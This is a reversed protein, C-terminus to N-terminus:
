WVAIVANEPYVGYIEEKYEFTMVPMMRTLSVLDGKRLPDCDKGVVAVEYTGNLEDWVDEEPLLLSSKKAEEEKDIITPRKACIMKSRLKPLKSVVMIDFKEQKQNKQKDM